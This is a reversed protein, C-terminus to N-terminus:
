AGPWSFRQESAPQYRIDSRMLRCSYSHHHLVLWSSGRIAALSWVKLKKQQHWLTVETHFLFFVVTGRRADLRCGKSLGLRAERRKMARRRRHARACEARPFLALLPGISFWSSTRIFLLWDPFCALPWLEAYLRFFSALSFSTM